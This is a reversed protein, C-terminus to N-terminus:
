WWSRCSAMKAVRRLRRQSGPWRTKVQRSSITAAGRWARRNIVRYRRRMFVAPAVSARTVCAIFLAPSVTGVGPPDPGAEANPAYVKIVVGLTVGYGLGDFIGATGDVIVGPRGDIDVRCM